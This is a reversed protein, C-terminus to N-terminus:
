ATEWRPKGLSSLFYMRYDCCLKERRDPDDLDIRFREQLREIRYLVTNRHVYMM